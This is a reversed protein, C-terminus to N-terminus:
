RKKPYMMATLYRGHRITTASKEVVAMALKHLITTGHHKITSISAQFILLV